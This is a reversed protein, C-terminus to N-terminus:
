RTIDQIWADDPPSGACIAVHDVPTCDPGLLSRVIRQVELPSMETWATNYAVIWTEM